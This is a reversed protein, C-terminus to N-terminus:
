KESLILLFAIIFYRDVTYPPKPLSWLPKESKTLAYPDVISSKYTTEWHETGTQLLIREKQDVSLTERKDNPAEKLNQFYFDPSKVRIEKSYDKPAITEIFQNHYNTKLRKYNDYFDM